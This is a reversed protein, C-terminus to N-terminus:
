MTCENRKVGKLIFVSRIVAYFQNETHADMIMLGFAVLVATNKKANNAIHNM